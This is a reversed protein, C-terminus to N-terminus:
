TKWINKYWQLCKRKIPDSPRTADPDTMLKFNESELWLNLRLSCYVRKACHMYIYLCDLSLYHSWFWRWQVSVIWIFKHKIKLSNISVISIVELYISHNFITTCTVWQKIKQRLIFKCSGKENSVVSGHLLKIHFYWDVGLMTVVYSSLLFGFFVQCNVWCPLM